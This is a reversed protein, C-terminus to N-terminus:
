GGPLESPDIFGNGNLDNGKLSPLLAVWTKPGVARREDIGIKQQFDWVAIATSYGFNGDIDLVYGLDFLAKQLVSVAYGSDCPKLPLESNTSYVDCEVYGGSGPLTGQTMQGADVSKDLEYFQWEMSIDVLNGGSDWDDWVVVPRECIYGSIWGYLSGPPTLWPEPPDYRVYNADYPLRASVMKLDPNLSRWRAVWFTDRCSVMRGNFGEPTGYGYDRFARFTEEGSAKPAYGVVDTPIPPLEDVSDFAYQADTPEFPAVPETTTTEAVSVTSTTAPLVSTSDVREDASSAGGGCASLIAVIVLPAVKSCKIVAM